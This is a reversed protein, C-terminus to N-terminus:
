DRKYVISKRELKDKNQKNNVQFELKQRLISTKRCFVSIKIDFTNM